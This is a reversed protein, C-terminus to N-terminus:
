CIKVLFLKEISVERNDDCFIVWLCHITFKSFIMLALGLSFFKIVKKM